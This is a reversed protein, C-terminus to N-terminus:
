YYNMFKPFIRGTQKMYTHYSEGFEEQMMKKEKPVRIFYLLSWPILGVFGLIWNSSIIFQAIIWIQTYMPNRIKEYPDQKILTHDEIIELVPSWNKGLAKHVEYFLWLSFIEIIIGAIRVIHPPGM